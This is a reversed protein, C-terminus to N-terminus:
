AAIIRHQQTVWLSFSLPLSPSLAISLPLPANSLSLHLSLPHSHTQHVTEQQDEAMEWIKLTRETFYLRSKDVLASFLYRQMWGQEKVVCASLPLPQRQWVRGLILTRAHTCAHAHAHKHVHVFTLSTETTLIQSQFYCRSKDWHGM